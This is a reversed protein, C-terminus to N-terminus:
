CIAATQHTHQLTVESTHTLLFAATYEQTKALFDNSILIGFVLILTIHQSVRLQVALIHKM